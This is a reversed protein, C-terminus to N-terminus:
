PRQEICREGCHWGQLTPQRVLTGDRSEQLGPRFRAIVLHELPSILQLHLCLWGKEVPQATSWEIVWVGVRTSELVVQRTENDRSV